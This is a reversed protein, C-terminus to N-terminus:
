RTLAVATAASVAGSFILGGFQSLRTLFSVNQTKTPVFVVDGPLVRRGLAGTRRSDVAGNAHVVFIDRNDALRLTGGAQKLYDRVRLREGDGLLFSAPRYVAGFVGVTLPRPPVVVVDNNEVALAGPLGAGDPRIPLVVRGDPQQQRLRDLLARAAAVQQTAQEASLASDASLPAGALTVELQRLAEDYSERQQRRVSVRQLNIGFSYARPTMGGALRIVQDLSTNPGVV